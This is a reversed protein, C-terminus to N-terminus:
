ERTRAQVWGDAGSCRELVQENSESVLRWSHPRRSTEADIRALTAAAAKAQELQEGDISPSLGRLVTRWSGNTNLELKM